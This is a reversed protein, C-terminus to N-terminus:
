VLETSITNLNIDKKGLIIEDLIKSELYDEIVKEIKRAGYKEYNSMDKIENITKKSIKINIGEDKYRNKLNTLKNDIIKLIDKENLEKFYIIKNIRNLFEIGLYQRIQEEKKNINVENFGLNKSNYGINSTMIIITNDFRIIEGKSNKAKGEDLIQLFLNIINNSAKEIEDLLIVSYPKDRVEEFVNLNDNYGVYGPPSGIIKSISHDEKFESMDLRVINNEGYCLKTYEKALLTKGVGTSGVFLFSFPKNHKKYGYRTKKTFKYLEDVAEDQGIIIKKLNNKFSNIVSDKNNDFVPIKSKSEIVTRVDKITVIKYDNNTIEKLEMKNRKTEIEMEKKRYSFADKFNNNLIADNKKNKIDILEKNLIDIDSIDNIKTIAVKSCVEDIIDIAKDPMKRDYIYKNSLIVISDIIENSIKVKHYSEYIPRIKYLIDKVLEINPEKINITQFRRELAKDKEIFQKYEKTTTAGIIKIKGRALAPKLINSADIAGEAGGAGVLTHIEDIFLIIDNNDELEKIIKGLRDEFEGRYKTGAVLTAMTISIIRKNRLNLPAKNTIILRSLEEVIATKGVGAEGILLPNNKTRRALIEFLRKIEEERGIVPDLEENIAKECLDVGFSDVLLKTKKNKKSTINIFDDYLNDIDINMGLLIRLAIGEGEEFIALLLDNADVLDKNKENANMCALDIINRLLPTYLFYDNSEKGIGIIKILEEKFTKYTVGSEKLKNKDEELGYKLISLFLHESGIYPHKLSSMEKQMNLLVKKAEENFKSFM